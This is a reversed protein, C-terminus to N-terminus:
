IDVLNEVPKPATYHGSLAYIDLWGDNDIDVFQGGWSWGAVEVHVRADESGSVREFRDGLNRFLSNGRAMDRLVPDLGPVKATIRRGAKSYMNTVYLDQRGDGDYDGWTVGMGFGIDTTGTEETVDVFRGDDNRFLNNPAFDNALYVDPDGDDDFDAWTAQYTHRFLRLEPVETAEVFRGGGVNRLLINPPGFVNRYSHYGHEPAISLEQLRRTDEAPLFDVLPSQIRTSDGAEEGAGELVPVYGRSNLDTQQVDTAYTSLYLDLLGDGDFDAATVSSVLYPLELDISDKSRDVFQGNENVLYKSRDLSRGLFCDVDGDNDFDAFVASTTHDRVDLGYEGAREEFTGDGRNQWLMNRGWQDMVYLDDFGDRDIDVISIGPHRDQVPPRFYRHPKSFARKRPSKQLDLLYQTVLTEHISNRARLREHRDPIVDDLVDTFPIRDIQASRFEIVKWERILWPPLGEQWAANKEWLVDLRAELFSWNGDTMRALAHFGMDSRWSSQERDVFDADIVHFEAHEFYSVQELLARWLVLESTAIGFQVPGVPYWHVGLGITTSVM